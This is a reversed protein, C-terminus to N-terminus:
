RSTCHAARSAYATSDAHSGEALPAAQDLLQRAYAIVKAGRV